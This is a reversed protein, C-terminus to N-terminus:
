PLKTAKAKVSLNTWMTFPIFFRLGSRLGALRRGGEFVKSGGLINVYGFSRGEEM